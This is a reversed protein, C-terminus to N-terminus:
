RRNKVNLKNGTRYSNQESNDINDKKFAGKLEKEIENACEKCFRGTKIPKSCRECDLILNSGEKIELKGQRLFELIKKTSVGTAESVERIDAKTNSYIYERVTFFMEEEKRRCHYCINFGDYNYIKGCKKCNKINM